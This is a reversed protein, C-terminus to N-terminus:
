VRDVLRQSGLRRPPRLLAALHGVDHPRSDHAHADRDLQLRGCQCRRGGQLPPQRWLRPLLDPLPPLPQCLRRPVHQRRLGLERQGRSHVQRELAERPRQLPAPQGHPERRGDDHIRGMEVDGRGHRQGRQRLYLARHWATRVHGSVRAHRVLQGRGSRGLAHQGDQRPKGQPRHRGDLSIRRCLMRGALSPQSDKHQAARRHHRQPRGQHEPNEFRRGCLPRRLHM